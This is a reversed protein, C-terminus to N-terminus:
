EEKNNKDNDAKPKYFEAKQCYYSILYTESLSKNMNKNDEDKFKSFIYSCFKDFNVCESSTHKKRYPTLDAIIKNYTRLPYHVYSPWLKIANPERSDDLVDREFKEVAALLRGFLYSRDNNNEDIIMSVKEGKHNYYNSVLACAYSLVKQRNWYSYALPNSAKIVLAHMIDRPIPHKDLMCRFIRQSQEKMVKDDAQIIGGHESGFAYDVIKRTLPTQVKTYPKKEPTFLPMYWKCTEGWYTLRDFFDSKKLENYYTISLRGTTAADLAIIVIDDCNDIVNNYGNFAKYLNKKFESETDGEIIEDDYSFFPNDLRPVKKGKPNWCIYTRKDSSGFTVGQNAALWTLANHAKQTAEYSVTCAQDSQTFRGRYTFGSSDNASILKSGYNAAVIGKPHNTCVSSNEGTVYCINKQGQKHSLYYKIFSNFLTADQWVASSAETYQSCTVRYRVICKEYANGQIKDDTFKGNEDLKVIGALVLDSITHRQETYKLVAQVKPHTFESESWKKLEESYAAFKEEAKKREKETKVYNCYDGALYSLTDCLPHPAIGSARGSSSETVPIITRKDDKDVVCAGQFDGNESVTIEIQASAIMHSPLSLMAKNSNFRGAKDSNNEYTQYLMNIWSM